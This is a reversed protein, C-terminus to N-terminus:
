VKVNYTGINLYLNYQGEWGTGQLYRPITELNDTRSLSVRYKHDKHVTESHPHHEKHLTPQQTDKSGFM